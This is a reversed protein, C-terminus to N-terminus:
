LVSPIQVEVKSIVAGETQPEEPIPKGQEVLVELYGTIAEEAHTMCEEVTEGQTFCGPLAPVEVWYGPQEQPDNPHILITYMYKKM